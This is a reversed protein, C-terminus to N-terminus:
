GLRAGFSLRTRALHPCNIRPQSSSAGSAISLGAIDNPAFRPRFKCRGPAHPGGSASGGPPCGEAGEEDGRARAASVDAQGVRRGPEVAAREGGVLSRDRQIDLGRRHGLLRRRRVLPRRRRVRPRGGVLRRGSRLGTGACGAADAHVVGAVGEAGRGARAVDVRAAEGALGADLGVLVVDLGRAALGRAARRVRHWAPWAVPGSCARHAAVSPADVASARCGALAALLAVARLSRLPPLDALAHLRRLARM